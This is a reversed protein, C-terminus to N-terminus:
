SSAGPPPSGTDPQDPPIRPPQITRPRGWEERVKEALKQFPEFAELLEFIRPVMRESAHTDSPFHVGALERNVGIRTALADCASTMDPVAFKVCRSILHAQLAHGNPYSPYPPTAIIPSITTWVQAPRARKYKLKYYFALAGGIESALWVMIWTAPRSPSICSLLNSWYPSFDQDQTNIEDVWAPNNLALSARLKIMVEEDRRLGDDSDDPAGPDCKGRWDAEALFATALAEAKDGPDWASDPFQTGGIMQVPTKLDPDGFIDFWGPLVETLSDTEPETPLRLIYGADGGVDRPTDGLKRM